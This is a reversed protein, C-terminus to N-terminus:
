QKLLVDFYSQILQFFHLLNIISTQVKEYARSKSIFTLTILVQMFTYPKITDTMMGLQFSIVENSQLGCAATNQKTSQKNKARKFFCVRDIDWKRGEVNVSRFLVPILALMSVHQLLVSRKGLKAWFNKSEQLVM